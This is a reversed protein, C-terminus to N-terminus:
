AALFPLKRALDFPLAAAPPCSEAAEESEAVVQAFRLLLLHYGARQRGISLIFKLPM